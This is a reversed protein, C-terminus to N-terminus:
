NSGWSGCFKPIMGQRAMKQCSVLGPGDISTTFLRDFGTTVSLPITSPVLGSVGHYQAVSLPPLSLSGGFHHYRPSLFRRRTLRHLYTSHSFVM